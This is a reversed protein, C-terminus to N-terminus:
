GRCLAAFVTRATGLHISPGRVKMAMRCCADGLGNARLWKAEGAAIFQDIMVQAGNVFDGFQAEWLM